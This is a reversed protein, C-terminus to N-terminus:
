RRRRWAGFIPKETVVIYLLYLGVGGLLINASWMAWFPSVIGRDSVDEGGILFAWYLTFLLVSIAIAVGMGGRRSLIGLPAGILIFALSAAPISYKKHIELNFKDQTRLQANVQTLNQEIAQTLVHAEKKVLDVAASDSISDPHNYVFPDALLYDIKETLRDNTRSIFPAALDVARSVEAEMQQINMERDGRYETETRKLQLGEVEVNIQQTAFALKRYNEPQNIDMSHVEGSYLTFQMLEGGNAFHLYGSDAVILQPKTADEIRNIRVGEIRSTSHDIDDLHILYGPIDNIFMGPQFSLTPRMVAIDARLSRAQRNLDPLLRDNFEIMLYTLVSAAALLPIMVRIMNVGSAKMATIEFDSTFRGFAMLTAVLVSMPISLALMWALNLGVLELVVWVSLNKDIVQDVIRPVFDIVLLFTIVFFAFIFPAVHEKLIYRSLIRMIPLFIHCNLGTALRM